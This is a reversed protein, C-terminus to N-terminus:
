KQKGKRDKKLELDKTMDAQNIRSKEKEIKQQIDESNNVKLSLLTSM